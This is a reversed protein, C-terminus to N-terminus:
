MRPQGTRSWRVALAFARGCTGRLAASRVAGLTSVRM